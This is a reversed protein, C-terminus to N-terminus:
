GRLLLPKPAGGGTGDTPLSDAEGLGGAPLATCPCAGLWAGGTHVSAGEVDGTLNVLVHAHDERIIIIRCGDDVGIDRRSSAPRSHLPPNCGLVPVNIHRQIPIYRTGDLCWIHLRM